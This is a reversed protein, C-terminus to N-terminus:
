LPFFPSWIQSPLLLVLHLSLRNHQFSFGKGKFQDLRQRAKVYLLTLSSGFSTLSKKLQKFTIM